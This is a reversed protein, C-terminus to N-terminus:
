MFPSIMFLLIVHTIDICHSTLVGEDSLSAVMVDSASDLKDASVTATLV